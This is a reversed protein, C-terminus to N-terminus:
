PFPVLTGSTQEEMNVRPGLGYQPVFNTESGWDQDFEFELVYLRTRGPKSGLYEPATVSASALPIWFRAFEGWYQLRMAGAPMSYSTDLALDSPLISWGDVQGSNGPSGRYLVGGPLMEWGFIQNLVLNGAGDRSYQAAAWGNIMGGWFEGPNNIMMSETFALGPDVSVAVDYLGFRQLTSTNWFDSFVGTEPGSEDLGRVVQIWGDQYDLELDGERSVTQGDLVRTESSGQVRWCLNFASGSAVQNAFFASADKWGNGGDCSSSSSEFTVLDTKIARPADVVFYEWGTIESYNWYGHQGIDYFLPMAMKSSELTGSDFAISSLLQENRLEAENSRVRFEECNADVNYTDSVSSYERVIENAGSVALRTYALARVEQEVLIVGAAAISAQLAACDCNPAAAANAADDTCVLSNDANNAYWETTFPDSSFDLQLQGGSIGWDFNRSIPEGNGGGAVGAYAGSLDLSNFQLLSGDRALFGEVAAPIAYYREPIDGEVFAPVIAPDSVIEEAAAAVEEANEAVFNDIPSQGSEDVSSDSIFDIISDYPEGTAPDTPVPVGGDVIAKIVAATELLETGNVQSSYADLEEATTPLEGGNAAAVLVFLATTFPTNNINPNETGDVIGDGDSDDVLKSFSGAISTMDVTQSEDNPNAGSSEIFVLENVDITAIEIAFEGKEDAVTTYTVGGVTITVTAYPIASDRVVGTLVLSTISCNSPTHKVDASDEEIGAVARVACPAATELAPRIKFKFKGKKSTETQGLAAGTVTDYLSVTEGIGAGALAGTVVVQDANPDYNANKINLDSAFVAPAAMAWLAIIGVYFPIEFLPRNKM